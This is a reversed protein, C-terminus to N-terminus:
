KCADLVRHVHLIVRCPRMPSRGNGPVGCVEPSAREKPYRGLDMGSAPYQREVADGRGGHQWTCSPFTVAPPQSATVPMLGALTAGAQGVQEAPSAWRVDPRGVAKQGGEWSLLSPVKPQSGPVEGWGDGGGDRERRGTCARWAGTGRGWPSGRCMGGGAGAWIVLAGALSGPATPALLAQGKAASGGRLPSIVDPSLGPLWAGPGGAAEWRPHESGAQQGAAGARCARCGSFPHELCAAQLVAEYRMEEESRIGYCCGLQPFHSHSTSVCCRAGSARLLAGPSHAPVQLRQRTCVWWLSPPLPPHLPQLPCGEPQCM